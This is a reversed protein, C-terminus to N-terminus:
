LGLFAFVAERRSKRGTALGNKDSLDSRSKSLIEARSSQATLLSITTQSSAERNIMQKGQGHLSIGERLIRAIKRL